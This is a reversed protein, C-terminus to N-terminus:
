RENMALEVNMAPYKKGNSGPFERKAQSVADIVGVLDQYPTRDDCHVIVQDLKRDAVDRHEGRAEWESTVRTALEPFRTAGAQGAGARPVDMQSEVASGYRWTLRFADASVSVHLARSTESHPGPPGPVQADAQLRAYTSWVATILLFCILCMLLDIMPVMNIESDLSRRGNSGSLTVGAM